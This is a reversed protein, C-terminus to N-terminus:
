KKSSLKEQFDYAMKSIQAIDEFGQDLDKVGGALVVLLYPRSCFVVGVDNAVGEDLDGEKHAVVVNEPLHGPLGLHYISHALDDLLRKGEEPHRRAFDLTAQLYVGMDRATTLNKGGPYVTKGGIGAMFQRFNDRGLHRALMRFAINDSLTLMLTHLTRLSYRDGERAIYRLIGNGGEYDTTQQYAVRTNWDLKGEVALTNLYLAMPLKVTSAAVMPKDENLGFSKGSGLDQFYIGYTGKRTAIFEEIQKKLPTYDPEVQYGYGYGPFLTVAAFLLSTVFLNFFRM